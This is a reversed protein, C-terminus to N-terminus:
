PSDVVLLYDASGAKQISFERIAIGLGASYNLEEIDQITWGATELQKDIQKRAKEEPKM